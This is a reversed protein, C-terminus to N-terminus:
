PGKDQIESYSNKGNLLKLETLRSGVYLIGYKKLEADKM